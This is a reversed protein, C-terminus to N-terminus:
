RPSLATRESLDYRDGERLFYFLSEKPPLKKLRSGERSWFTDDYIAVYGSGVVTFENGRVIIATGEDIGIGLLEPYRSRISFMDFHRNRALHHQHVLTDPFRQM